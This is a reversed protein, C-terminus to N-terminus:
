SFRQDVVGEGAYGMAEAGSGRKPPFAERCLAEAYGFERWSGKLMISPLGWRSRAEFRAIHMKEKRIGQLSLLVWWHPGAGGSSKSLTDALVSM